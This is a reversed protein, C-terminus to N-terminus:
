APAPHIFISRLAGVRVLSPPLLLLAGPNCSFRIPESPKAVIFSNKHRCPQPVGLAKGICTHAGEGQQLEGFQCLQLRLTKHVKHIRLAPRACSIGGTVASLRDNLFARRLSFMRGHNRRGFAIQM